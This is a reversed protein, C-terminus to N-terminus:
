FLVKLAFQIVRADGATLIRGMRSDTMTDRPSGLNVTNFLNFFECRFQAKLGERGPLPINKFVAFNTVAQSPGDLANRGANGFVGQVPAAFAVRNYWALVKEGRPRDEPLRHEGVVDPRQRPTGTLAYDRGSLVNIPRASRYRVLGNAQWGRVIGRLLRSAPKPAPVEWLWSLNLVHKAHFEALGYETSLDFVNPVVPGIANSSNMDITRAWTYSGQLSFGKGFRRRFQSQLGNYKMNAQTTVKWGSAYDPYLRRREINGATAGAVAIGPNWEMSLVLKRALKGVYGVEVFFDGKLQRQVNLNFHQAYPTRISPDPHNISQRGVFRPNARDVVLPPPTQGFLPDALSAPQAYNYTYNFPQVWNSNSDMNVTDYFIGYGGRLATRGNGALDWAFGFRPSFNNNDNPILGRPVGPDGPYVQGLPAGPFVKSQMGIRLTGVYDNPHIWPRPLEYRLGVNLTLRPHIRWDDQAYYYSNTQRGATEIPPSSLSLATAKGLVFDAASSGTIAGDFTFAGMALVFTRALYRMHLWEFGAKFSHQGRTWTISDSLQRSENVQDADVSSNNGLVLRGTININPPIKRGGVVPFNAGLDSLHMPNTVRYPTWNRNVSARLQNLLNTRLVFTDGVTVNQFRALRDLPMYRAVNGTTTLDTAQNYNYRADVTHRGLNFDTRVLFQKNDQRTPYVEVLQGDPRNPLPMIEPSLIRAAVPDLRNAPIRNGPFPQRTLPDRVAAAGSFDGAREASTLPFAQTLLAAPRVRLGEYSGFIFAKNRRLPGGASAGFQNQILKPKDSPAFFNRANLKHNRHFEWLAGHLENTGSKTVVNFVSGSNRGYEASYTNTQIKVEKLADPPPFNMGTNRFHANNPAGDFLLLNQNRRGGSVSFDPGSRDGTFTQPASVDTVGPLLAALAVVNRGAIPLEVIRREDILASVTSSRSDVLPAEATVEVSETVSGVELRADVRLNDSTNLEVGSRHFAKFGSAEVTIRYAGVPQAPLLYEGQLNTEASRTTGRGALTATVRAGPVASGSPDTVIGHITGIGQACATVGLALLVLIRM